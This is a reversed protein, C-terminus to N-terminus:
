NWSFDDWLLYTAVGILALIILPPFAMMIIFCILFGLVFLISVWGM